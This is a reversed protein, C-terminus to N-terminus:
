QFSNLSKKKLDFETNKRDNRTYSSDQAQSYHFGLIGGMTPIVSFCAQHLKKFFTFLKM